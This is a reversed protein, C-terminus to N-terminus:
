SATVSSDTDQRGSAESSRHQLGISNIARRSVKEGKWDARSIGKESKRGGDQLSFEPMSAAKIDSAECNAVSVPAIARQQM